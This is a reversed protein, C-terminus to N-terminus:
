QNGQNLEVWRWLISVKAELIAIRQDRIANRAAVKEGPEGREELAQLKKLKDCQMDYEACRKAFEADGPDPM